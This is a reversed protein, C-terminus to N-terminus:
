CANRAATTAATQHQLSVDIDDIGAVRSEPRVIGPALADAAPDVAPARDVHLTTDHRHQERPLDETLQIDLHLTVHVERGGDALLITPETGERHHQAAVTRVTDHDGLRG